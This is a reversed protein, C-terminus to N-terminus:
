ADQGTAPLVLAGKNDLPQPQTHMAPHGTRLFIWGLVLAVLIIVLFGVIVPTISSNKYIGDRDEVM